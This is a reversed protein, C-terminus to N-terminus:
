HAVLLYQLESAAYCLALSLGQLNAPPCRGASFLFYGRTQQCSNPRFSSVHLQGPLLLGILGVEEQLQQGFPGRDTALAAQVHLLGYRPRTLGGM